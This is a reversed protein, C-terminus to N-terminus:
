PLDVYGLLVQDDSAHGSADLVPLRGGDAENYLGVRVQYRRPPTDPPLLMEFHDNIVQGPIWRNTNSAYNQPRSDVQTLLKGQDDIVHIFVKYSEAMPQWALWLLRVVLKDGTKDLAFGQLGIQNGLNVDLPQLAAVKPARWAKGGVLGVVILLAVTVIAALRRHRWWALVLWALLAVLSIVIVAARLQTPGFNLQVQHEGAPVAVGVVGIPDTPVALAPKGDITASWGPIWFAHRSLVWPEPSSVRAELHDAEAITPVLRAPTPLMQSRTPTDNLMTDVFRHCDSLSSTSPLYEYAWIWCNEKTAQGYAVDHEFALLGSDSIDAATIQPLGASALMMPDLKWDVKATAMYLVLLIPVVIRVVRGIRGAGVVALGGGITLASFLAVPGFWRFPFQLYVAQQVTQWLPAAYHSMLLFAGLTSALFLLFWVAGVAVHRRCAVIFCAASLLALALLTFSFTVAPYGHVAAGFWGFQLTQPLPKLDALFLARVAPFDFTRIGGLETQSPLWYFCSLLAATFAAGILAVLARKRQARAASALAVGGFALIFPAFLFASLPHTLILLAGTLSTALYTRWGPAKTTQYIVLFLIPAVALGLMEALAGRPSILSLFYPNFVYVVATVLGAYRNFLAAGLAYSSLAAGVMFLTIGLKYAVVYNAGLLHLIELFYPSLPPYYSLEAWGYGFALSPFRLPYVDGAAIRQDLSFLSFLHFLSDYGYPVYPKFWVSISAILGTLGALVAPWWSSLFPRQKM